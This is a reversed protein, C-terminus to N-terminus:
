NNGQRCKKSLKILTHDSSLRLSWRPHPQLLLDGGCVGPAEPEPSLGGTLSSGSPTESDPRSGPLSARLGRPSLEPTQSGWFILVM